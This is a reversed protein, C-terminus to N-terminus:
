CGDGGTLLDEKGTFVETTILTGLRYGYVFKDMNAFHNVAGQAEILAILLEQEAENLVSRLKKEANTLTNVAKEYESNHKLFRTDPSINGCALEELISRMAEQGKM